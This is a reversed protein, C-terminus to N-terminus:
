FWFRSGDSYLLLEKQDALFVVQFEPFTPIKESKLYEQWRRQTELDQVPIMSAGAVIERLIQPPFREPPIDNPIFLSLQKYHILWAKSGLYKQVLTLSFDGQNIQLGPTLLTKTLLGDPEASFRQDDAFFVLPQRTLKRAAESMWPKKFNLIAASVKHNMLPNPEFLEEARRLTMESGILIRNMAPTRIELQIGDAAPRCSIRLRQDAQNLVLRWLSITILALSILGANVWTKKEFRILPWRKLWIVSIALIIM